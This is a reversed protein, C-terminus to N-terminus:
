SSEPCMRRRPDQPSPVFMAAPQARNPAVSTARLTPRRRSVPGESQIAGAPYAKAAHSQTRRETYGGCPLGRPTASTGRETYGRLSQKPQEGTYAYLPSAPPQPTGLTTNPPRHAPPPNTPAPPPRRSKATWPSHGRDRAARFGRATWPGLRPPPQTHPEQSPDPSPPKTRRNCNGLPNPPPSDGLLWHTDTPSRGVRRRRRLGKVKRWNTVVITTIVFLSHYASQTPDLCSDISHLCGRTAMQTRRM